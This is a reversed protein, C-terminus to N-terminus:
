KNSEENIAKKLNCLYGLLAICKNSNTKNHYGTDLGHIVAHRNFLSYIENNCYKRKMRDTNMIMSQLVELPYFQVAYIFGDKDEDIDNKSLIEDIRAKTLPEDKKYVKSYISIGLIKRSIGDIQSLLTPISLTYLGNKHANYADNIILSHDPFMNTINYIIDESDQEIISNMFNDIEFKYKEINDKLDSNILEYIEDTSDIDFEQLNYLYWGFKAFENHIEKSRESMENIIQRISLSLEKIGSFIGKYLESFDLAPKLAEYVTRGLNESIEIIDKNVGECIAKRAEEIIDKVYIFDNDLYM